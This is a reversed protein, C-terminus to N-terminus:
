RHPLADFVSESWRALRWEPAGSVRLAAAAVQLPHCPSEVVADLNGRLRIGALRERDAVILVRAPGRSGAALLRGVAEDDDPLALVLVLPAPGTEHALIDLVSFGAENLGEALDSFDREPLRVAAVPRAEAPRLSWPSRQAPLPTRAPRAPSAPSATVVDPALVPSPALTM